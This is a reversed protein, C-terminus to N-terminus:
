ADEFVRAIRDEMEGPLGKKSKLDLAHVTFTGNVSVYVTITGPTLTISNAFTVLSLPKKLRSEFRFLQPDIRALMRPHFVLMLVHLNALFIKYLLWPTYGMFRLGSKFFGYTRSDPFLLDKSIHTVILCSIGGLTLHFVDLKGSLLIWLCFLGAFTLVYARIVHKMECSAANSAKRPEENSDYLMRTTRM